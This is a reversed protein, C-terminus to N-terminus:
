TLVHVYSCWKASYFAPELALFAPLICIVNINSNTGLTLNFRQSSDFTQRRMRGLCMSCQMLFRRIECCIIELAM